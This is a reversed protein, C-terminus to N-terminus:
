QKLAEEITYKFHMHFNYKIWRYLVTPSQLTFILLNNAIVTLAFVKVHGQQMFAWFPM